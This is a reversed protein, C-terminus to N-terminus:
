DKNELLIQLIQNYKDRDKKLSLIVMGPLYEKGPSEGSSIDYNVKQILYNIHEKLTINPKKNNM